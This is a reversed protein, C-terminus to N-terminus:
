GVSAARRLLAPQDGVLGRVGLRRAERVQVEVAGHGGPESGRRLPSPLFANEARFTWVWVDLGRDSAAQMADAGHDAGASRLLLSHELGVADCSDAVADWAGPSSPLRHEVLRVLGVQRGSRGTHRDRARDLVVPDFALLWAPVADSPVSAAELDDLVRDAMVAPDLAGGVDGAKVEVAVGIVRDRLRSQERVLALVDRLRLVPWQDDHAASTRRVDPWRERCRLVRLEDWTLLDAWIDDAPGAELPRVERAHALRPRSAADTTRSLAQDHRAVLVGDRTAVVDVEVVDAGEDIAARYAPWTHEPFRACAGRHAVVLPDPM